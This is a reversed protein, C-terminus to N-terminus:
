APQYDAGFVPPKLGFGKREQEREAHSRRRACRTLTLPVSMSGQVYTRLIKEREETNAEAALRYCEAAFERYQDPTRM